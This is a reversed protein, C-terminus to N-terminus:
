CHTRDPAAVRVPESQNSWRLLPLERVSLPAPAPPLCIPTLSRRRRRVPRSVTQVLGPTEGFRHSLKVFHRRLFRDLMFHLQTLKWQSPKSCRLLNCVYDNEKHAPDCRNSPSAYSAIPPLSTSRTGTPM